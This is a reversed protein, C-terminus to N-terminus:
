NIIRNMTEFLIKRQRTRNFDRNSAVVANSVISLVYEKNDLTILTDLLQEKRTAVLAANNRLFYQTVAIDERAYCVIPVGISLYEPVKTSMSYQLFNIDSGYGMEVFLLADAEKYKAIIDNHLIDVHIKTISNDFLNAYKKYDSEFTYLEISMQLGNKKITNEIELLAKERGLHLGGAYMLTKKGDKFVTSVTDSNMTGVMLVEYKGGYTLSYHKKMEESIVLSTSNNKEIVSLLINKIRKKGIERWNDFYHVLIPKKTIIRLMSLFVLMKVSSGTTYAIDFDIKRMKLLVNIFTIYKFKKKWILTKGKQFHFEGDYIGLIYSNSCYQEGFLDRIAIGSSNNRFIDTENIFLVKM